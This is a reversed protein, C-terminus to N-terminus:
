LTALVSALLGFFAVVIGAFVSDTWGNVQSGVWLWALPQPGWCSLVVVFLAVLAVAAVAGDVRRRGTGARQPTERYRLPATGPRRGIFLAGNDAPDNRPM